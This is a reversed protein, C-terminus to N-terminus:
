RQLESVLYALESMESNRPADKLPEIDHKANKDCTDTNSIGEFANFSIEYNTFDENSASVRIASIACDSDGVGTGNTFEAGLTVSTGTGYGSITGTTRKDGQVLGVTKGAEDKLFVETSFTEEVSYSNVINIGDITFQSSGDAKTVGFDNNQAEGYREITM